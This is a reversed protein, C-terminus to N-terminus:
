VNATTTCIFLACLNQRCSIKAFKLFQVFNTTALLKFSNLNEYKIVNNISIHMPDMATGTALISLISLHAALCKACPHHTHDRASGTFASPCSRIHIVSTCEVRYPLTGCHVNIILLDSCLIYKNCQVGLKM